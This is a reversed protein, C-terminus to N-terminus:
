FKVSNLRINFIRFPKPGWNKDEVALFLPKHDSRLRHLAKRNWNATSIWTDSGFVRDLRSRRGQPGIWTFTANVPNIKILNNDNIWSNFCNRSKQGKNNNSNVSEGQRRTCNLDGLILMPLNNFDCHKLVRNLSLWFNQKDKLDQPDYVNVLVFDTNKSVNRLTVGVWCEEIECNMLVFKSEEWITLIGGSYGRSGIFAGRFCRDRCVEKVVEVSVTKLKTEQVCVINPSQKSILRRSSAKARANSLGRINWSLIRCEEM